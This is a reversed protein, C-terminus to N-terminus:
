KFWVTFGAQGILDSGLDLRFGSREDVTRIEDGVIEDEGIFDLALGAQTFLSIYSTPFYEALMGVGVSLNTASEDTERGNLEAALSLRQLDLGVIGALRAKPWTKVAYDGYLGLEMATSRTEVEGAETDASARGLGLGLTLSLGAQPSVYTRVSMGHSGGLTTNGGVGVAGSKNSWDPATGEQARVVDGAVVMAAVAVLVLPASAVRCRDHLRNM